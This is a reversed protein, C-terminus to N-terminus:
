LIFSGGNSFWQQLYDWVKMSGKEEGIQKATLGDQPLRVTVCTHMRRLMRLARRFEQSRDKEKFSSGQLWLGWQRPLM